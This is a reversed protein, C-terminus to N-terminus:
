VVNSPSSKRVQNSERLSVSPKGHRDNRRSPRKVRSSTGNGNLIRAALEDLKCYSEKLGNPALEAVDALEMAWEFFARLDRSLRLQRIALLNDLNFLDHRAQEYNIDGAAISAVIGRGMEVLRRELDHKSAATEALAHVINSPATKM